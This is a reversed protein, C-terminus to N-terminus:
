GPVQVGAIWGERHRAEEPVADTTPLRQCSRAAGIAAAAADLADGSSAAALEADSRFAVGDHRWADLQRAREPLENKRCGAALWMRPFIEVLVARARDIRDASDFPWVALGEDARLRHLMAIGTISGIGVQSPGILHFVSEARCPAERDTARLVRTSPGGAGIRFQRALHPDEAIARRIPALSGNGGDLAAAWRGLDEWSWTGDAEPHEFAAPFGFAFDLAVLRRARGDLPGPAPWDQWAPAPELPAGRLYDEVAGRDRARTVSHLTIRSGQRHAEAVYVRQGSRSAAGSWDIGIFRDFQGTM